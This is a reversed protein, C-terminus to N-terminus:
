LAREVVARGGVRVRTVRGGDAELEALILSPRGMSDGQHFSQSLGAQGRVFLECALAGSATGTAPEEDIGYLPAFDRCAATAGEKLRAYAHVGVVGHARSYASLAPLDPKVAALAEVTAFEVLLDPLGTSVCRPTGLPMAGLIRGLERADHEVGFVPAAQDMLVLGDSLVEVGLVGAQTEQTYLGPIIRGEKLLAAFTAITAHGCLDVEAAPTFFRVKFNTIHSHEVFATESFGLEAALAQREADPMDEASLVVGARNGGTWDRTFASVVFGLMLDNYRPAGPPHRLHSSRM